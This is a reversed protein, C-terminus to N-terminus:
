INILKGDELKFQREMKSALSLDHTV